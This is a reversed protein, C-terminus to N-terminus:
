RKDGALVHISPMCKLDVVAHIMYSQPFIKPAVYFTGDTIWDTYEALTEM